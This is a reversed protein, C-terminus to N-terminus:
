KTSRHINWSAEQFERAAADIFTRVKSAVFQRHPYVASVPMEPTNFDTLLGVLRGSNLEESVSFSPLYILGQGLVAALRLSEMSDVRLDGSIAIAQDVAGESFPWERV